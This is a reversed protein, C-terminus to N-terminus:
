QGWRDFVVWILAIAIIAVVFDHSQSLDMTSLRLTGALHHLYRM